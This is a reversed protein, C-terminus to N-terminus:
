SGSSLENTIHHDTPVWTYCFLNVLHSEAAIAAATAVVIDRKNTVTKSCLFNM